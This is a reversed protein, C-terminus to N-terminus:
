KKINYFAENVIESATKEENNSRNAKIAKIGAAAGVIPTAYAATTKASEKVVRGKLTKLNDSMEGIANRMGRRAEAETTTKLNKKFTDIVAKGAKVDNVRSKINKGTLVEKIGAEKEFATKEEKKEKMKKNALAGGTVLGAAAIGAGIATKTKGSLGKKIGMNKIQEMTPAKPKVNSIKGNFNTGNGTKTKVKELVEKGKDAANGKEAMDKMKKLTEESVLDKMDFGAIKAFTENVLESATKERYKFGAIKEFTRDVIDFAEKNMNDNEKKRKIKKNILAGTVGVGAGAITSAGVAKGIEKLRKDM